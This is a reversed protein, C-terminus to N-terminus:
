GRGDGEVPAESLALRDAVVRFAYGDREWAADFSLLRLPAPMGGLAVAFLLVSSLRGRGTITFRDARVPQAEVSPSSGAGTSAGLVTAALAGDSNGLPTVQEVDLRTVALQLSRALKLLLNRLKLADTAGLWREARPRLEELRVGARQQWAELGDEEAEAAAIASELSGARRRLAALDGNVPVPLAMLAGMVVMALAALSSRRVAVLRQGSQEALPVRSVPVLLSM